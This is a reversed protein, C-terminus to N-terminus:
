RIRVVPARWGAGAVRYGLRALTDTVVTRRMGTLRQVIAPTADEGLKKLVARVEKRRATERTESAKVLERWPRGTPAPPTAKRRRRRRAQRRVQRATPLHKVPVGSARMDALMRRLKKDSRGSM